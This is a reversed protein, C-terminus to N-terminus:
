RAALIPSCWCVHGLECVADSWLRAAILCMGPGATDCDMKNVGVILQRGVAARWGARRCVIACCRM